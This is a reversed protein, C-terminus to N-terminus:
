PRFDHTITQHGDNAEYAQERYLSLAQLIPTDQVSFLIADASTDNAHEHWAWPPTVFFDGTTWALREGNIVTYGQGRFVHYVASNTQRHAKTRVGPRILQIWCAMTPLVPGGTHPNIYELAVDDFPSADATALHRLAEETREWKYNLLPSSPGAPHEWTPRLQGVGYRRESDNAPKTAPQQEGSYPEFFVADMDHVFPVDLGDMWLVPEETDNGHDHWTWPPTLVLDGPGMVCRDGEVTTYAGKGQIIFRIAAPSHRHAPATEGPLLIQVGAWLTYTAAWKGGLGPNMFAIVRREGGREIPVLTAARHALPAIDVWRWLYPVVKPQPERPLLRPAIEWLPVTHLRELDHYLAPLEDTVAKPTSAMFM